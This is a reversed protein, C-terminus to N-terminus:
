PGQARLRVRYDLLAGAAGAEWMLCYDQEAPSVFVGADARTKDRTIPMIVTKGEHYHVNFDVPETAEFAFEVRDGVRLHVCEEHWEYPAIPQARVTKPSDATIPTACACLSLAAAVSAFRFGTEQTM